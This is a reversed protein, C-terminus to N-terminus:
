HWAEASKEAIERLMWLRFFFYRLNYARVNGAQSLRQRSCWYPRILSPLLPHSILEQPSSHSAQQRHHPKAVCGKMRGGVLRHKGGRREQAVQVQGVAVRVSGRVPAALIQLVPCSCQDVSAGAHKVGACLQLRHPGTVLQTLSHTLSHNRHPTVQLIYVCVCVCVCVGVNCVHM